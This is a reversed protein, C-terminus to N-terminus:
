IGLGLLRPKVSHKPLDSRCLPCYNSKLYAKALRSGCTKCGILEAKANQFHFKSNEDQFKVRATRLSAQIALVDKTPIKMKRYRVAFQGHRLNDRKSILDEADERSGCIIDEIWQIKGGLGSSSEGRGECRATADWEAKVSDRNVPDSYESYYLNWSMNSGGKIIKESIPFQQTTHMRFFLYKQRYPSPLFAKLL